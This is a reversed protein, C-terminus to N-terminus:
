PNDLEAQMALNLQELVLKALNAAKLKDQSPRYTPLPLADTLGASQAGEAAEVLLEAAAVKAARETATKNAATTQAHTKDVLKWKGSRYHYCMHKGDIHRKGDEGQEPKRWKNMGGSKQHGTGGGGKPNRSDM